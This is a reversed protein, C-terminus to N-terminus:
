SPLTLTFTSGKGVESKVILSGGLSEAQIKSIYLGTGIGKFQNAYKNSPELKTFREFIYSFKDTPIGIGTDTVDFIFHEKTRHISLKVYGKETFKVANSILSLLILSLKLKDTKILGLAELEEQSPFILPIKKLHLTATLMEKIKHLEEYLYFADIKTAGEETRIAELIQHHIKEWQVCSEIMPELWEKLEPYQEAYLAYLVEASGHIGSFPTGLDHQMNHIFDIKAEVAAEAREKASVLALETNKLETIDVSVGIIGVINGQEDILPAKHTLMTIQRKDSLVPYEELEITKNEEIIVEDIKKLNPAFEKWPMDFDTKGVVDSIGAMQLVFDNCGLYVGNKDKWYISGPVKNLINKIYFLNKQISTIDSLTAIMGIIEKESNFLPAKNVLLYSTNGNIIIRPLEENEQSQGTNIINLDAQEYNNIQEATWNSFQFLRQYTLEKDNATFGFKYLLNNNAHIQRSGKSRWYTMSPMYAVVQDLESNM